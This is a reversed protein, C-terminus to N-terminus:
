TWGTPGSIAWPGCSGGSEPLTRWSWDTDYLLWDQFYTGNVILIDGLEGAAIMSRIQQVVPYFRLNHNTCHAVHKAGAFAVLERAEASTMTLPKECVIHKGAEIAAKAMPYHLDNPTCIHVADVNRDAMVAHWDGCAIPISQAAAFRDAVAQNSAAITTVEVNGLRRIAETHVRGMFGTGLVAAKLKRM